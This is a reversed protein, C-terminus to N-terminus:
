PARRSLRRWAASKGRKATRFLFAARRKPVRCASAKPFQRQSRLPGRTITQVTADFIGVRIWKLRCTPTSVFVGCPMDVARDFVREVPRGARKMRHVIMDRVTEPNRVDCTYTGAPVPWTSSVTRGTPTEQGPWRRNSHAAHFLGLYSGFNSTPM